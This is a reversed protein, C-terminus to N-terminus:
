YNLYKLIDTISVFTLGKKRRIREIKERKRQQQEKNRQQQTIDYGRAYVGKRAKAKPTNYEAM